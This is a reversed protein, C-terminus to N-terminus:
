ECEYERVKCISAGRAVCSNNAVEKDYDVIFFEKDGVSSCSEGDPLYRRGNTEALKFAQFADMGDGGFQLEVGTSAWEYTGDDPDPEPAPDTVTKEGIDTRSQRAIYTGEEEVTRIFDRRSFPEFTLYEDASRVRDQDCARTQTFEEGLDVTSASPSWASCSYVDGIDSWDGYPEREVVGDVCNGANLTWSGGDCKLSGGGEQYTTSVTFLELAGSKAANVPVSCAGATANGAACDQACSNAGLVNEGDDCSFWASGSYGTLASPTSVSRNDGHEVQALNAACRGSGWVGTESRCDVNCSESSSTVTGDNCSLRASGSTGSTESSFLTNTSGHKLTGVDAACLNNKNTGSNSTGSGWHADGTCDLLCQSPGTEEWAGNNCKFGASGNNITTNLSVTEGHVYDGEPITARCSNDGNGDAWTALSGGSCNQYCSGGTVTVSASNCKVDVSGSFGNENFSVTQAEGTLLEIGSVRCTNGQSSDTFIVNADECDDCLESPPNIETCMDEFVGDNTTIPPLTSTATWPDGLCPNSCSSVDGGGCTVETQWYGKIGAPVFYMDNISLMSMYGNPTCLAAQIQPDTPLTPEFSSDLNSVQGSVTATGCDENVVDGYSADCRTAENTNGFCVASVEFLTESQTDYMENAYLVSSLGSYGNPQCLANIIANDPPTSYTDSVLVQGDIRADDCNLPVVTQTERDTEGSSADCMNEPNVNGSCRAYTRARINHPADIEYGQYGLSEAALIEVLESYQAHYCSLEGIKQISAGTATIDVIGVDCSERTISNVNVDALTDATVNQETVVSEQIDLSSFSNCIASNVKLNGAECQYKILGDNSNSVISRVDGDQMFGPKMEHNCANGEESIWEMEGILCGNDAAQCISNEFSLAGADCSVGTAGELGGSILTVIKSEGDSLSPIDFSCQEHQFTSTSCAEQSFAHPSLLLLFLVPLIRM